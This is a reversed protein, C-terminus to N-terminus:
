LLYIFLSGIFCLIGIIISDLIKGNIFKSFMLNAQDKTGAREFLYECVQMRSNDLLECLSIPMQVGDATTYSYCPVLMLLFTLFIAVVPFLYRIYVLKKKSNRNM